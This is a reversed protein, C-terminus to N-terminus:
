KSKMKNAVIQAGAPGGLLVQKYEELDDVLEMIVMQADADGRNASEILDAAAAKRGEGRTGKAMKWLGKMKFAVSSASGLLPVGGVGAKIKKSSKKAIIYDLLEVTETNGKALAMVQIKKLRRIHKVTSQVKKIAMAASFAHSVGPVPVFGVGVGVAVGTLGKATAVRNTTTAAAQFREAIAPSIPGLLRIADNAARVKESLDELALEKAEPPAIGLQSYVANKDSTIAALIADLRNKDRVATGPIVRGKEDVRGALISQSFQSLNNYLEQVFVRAAITADDEDDMKSLREHAEVIRNQFDTYEEPPPTRGPVHAPLPPPLRRGPPAPTAQEKSEVKVEPQPTRPPPPPAPPLRPRPAPSMGPMAVGGGAGKPADAKLESNAKIEAAVAQPLSFSMYSQKKHVLEGGSKGYDSLWTTVMTSITTLHSRHRDLDIQTRGTEANYRAVEAQIAEFAKQKDTKDGIKAKISGMMGTHYAQTPLNGVKRRLVQDRSRDVYLAPRGAVYLRDIAPGAGRPPVPATPAERNALLAVVATNGISRQLELPSREAV